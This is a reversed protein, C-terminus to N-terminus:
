LLEGVSSVLATPEPGAKRAIFTPAPGAPTKTPLTLTFPVRLAVLRLAAFRVLAPVSFAEVFGTSQVCNFFTGAGNADPWSTCVILPREESRVRAAPFSTAMAIAPFVSVIEDIATGALLGSWNAVSCQYLALVFATNSTGPFRAPIPKSPALM